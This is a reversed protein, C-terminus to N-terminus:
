LLIFEMTKEIHREETIGLAYKSNKGFNYKALYAHNIEETLENLDKPIAATINYIRDGCKIQGEACELFATYWSRKALGWSRAFIRNQVAVMWIELFDTRESGAKIGMLNNNKIFDLVEDTNM